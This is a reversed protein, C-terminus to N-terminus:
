NIQELSKLRVEFCQGFNYFKSLKKGKIDDKVLSEIDLMDHKLINDLNTAKMLDFTQIM